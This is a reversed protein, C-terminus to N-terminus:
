CVLKLHTHTRAHALVAEGERRDWCLLPGRPPSLSCSRHPCSGHERQCFVTDRKEEAVVELHERGLITGLMLRKFFCALLPCAETNDRKVSILPQYFVAYVTLQRKGVM